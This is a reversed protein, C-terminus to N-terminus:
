RAAYGKLIGEVIADAESEDPLPQGLLLPVAVAGMLADLMRRAHRYIAPIGVGARRAIESISTAMYGRELMVEGACRLLAEDIRIDRPRGPPRPDTSIV